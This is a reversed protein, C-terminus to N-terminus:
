TIFFLWRISKRVHIRKLKQVIVTGSGLKYHRVTFDRSSKKFIASDPGFFVCVFGLFFTFLLKWMKLGQKLLNM